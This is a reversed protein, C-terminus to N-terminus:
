HLDCQKPAFRAVASSMGEMVAPENLDPNAALLISQSLPRLLEIEKANIGAPAEYIAEAISILSTCLTAISGTATARTSKATRLMLAVRREFEIRDIRDAVAVCVKEVSSALQLAAQEVRGSNMQSVVHAVSKALVDPDVSKGELKEKLTNPVAYQRVAGNQDSNRRDPGIYEGTAVFPKRESVLREIRKFLQAPSFPKVLVFDAGSRAAKDVVAPDPQATVLIVPLFPNKGLKGKRIDSILEVPDGGPMEADVIVLDLPFAEITERLVSIRGITRVDRYEESVLANRLGQRMYSDRDALVIKVSARYKALSMAM